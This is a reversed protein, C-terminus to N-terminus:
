EPAKWDKDRLVDVESELQLPYGTRIISYEERAEGIVGMLKGGALLLKCIAVIGARGGKESRDIRLEMM